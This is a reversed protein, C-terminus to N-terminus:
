LMLLYMYITTVHLGLQGSVPPLPSFQALQLFLGPTNFCTANIDTTKTGKRVCCVKYILCSLSYKVLNWVCLLSNCIRCTVSHVELRRSIHEFVISEHIIFYMLSELIRLISFVSVSEWWFHLASLPSPFQQVWTCVIPSIVFNKIESRLSRPWSPNKGPM